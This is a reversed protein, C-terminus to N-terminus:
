LAVAVILAPHLGDTCGVTTQLLVNRGLISCCGRRVGRLKGVREFLHRAVPLSVVSGIRHSERFTRLASELHYSFVGSRAIEIFSGGIGFGDAPIAPSTM